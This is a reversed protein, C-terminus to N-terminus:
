DRAIEGPDWGGRKPFGTGRPDIESIRKHLLVSLEAKTVHDTLGPDALDEQTADPFNVALLAEIEKYTAEPRAALWQQWAARKAEISDDHSESSM